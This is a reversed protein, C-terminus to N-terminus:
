EPRRQVSPDRAAIAVALRSKGRSSPGGRKAATAPLHGDHGGLHHLEDAHRRAHRVLAAGGQARLVEGLDVAPEGRLTGGLLCRAALLAAHREALDMARQVVVDRVPQPEGGLTAQLFGVLQGRRGVVHRLDAAPDARLVTQALAVADDLLRPVAGDGDTGDLFVDGVGGEVQAPDLRDPRRTLQGLRDADDARPRGAEGTGLLQALMAPLDVDVVAVVPDAPQQDIADRAELQLLRDDLAPGPVQAVAADVEMEGAVDAALARAEGLQALAMVGYEDSGADVLGAVEGCGAAAQGPDHRREVKEGRAVALTQAVRDGGEVVAGQVRGALVHHDDAAAVGRHVAHAGRDALAGLRDAAEVPAVAGVHRTRQALDAIGLLFADLEDPEGGGLRKEAVGPDLRNARVPHPQARGIGGTALRGLDLGARGEADLGIQDDLRQAEIRLVQRGQEALGRELDAAPARDPDVPVGHHGLMGPTKAPPSMTRPAESTTHPTRSPRSAAWPMWAWRPAPSVAESAGRASARAEHPPVGHGLVLGPGLLDGGPPAVGLMELPMAEVIGLLLVVGAADAAHDRDVALRAALHHELADLRQLRDPVATGDVGVALGAVAGADM